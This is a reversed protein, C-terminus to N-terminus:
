IVVDTTFIAFISLKGADGLPAFSANPITQGASDINLTSSSGLAARGTPFVQLYGPGSADVATVNAVVATANSPIGLQGTVQVDMSTTALLRQMPAGLGIRTDVLRQPSIPTFVSAGSPVPGAEANDVGRESRVAQIGALVMAIACFRFVPRWAHKVLM